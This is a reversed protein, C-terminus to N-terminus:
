AGLDGVLVYDGGIRKVSAPSYQGATKLNGDKSVLSVGAGAVFTIQNANYQLFDVQQGSSLVDDITVTLASDNVILKGADASVISYTTNEGQVVQASDFGGDAGDAGQPGAAGAIVPEWQETQSNYAKPVPM